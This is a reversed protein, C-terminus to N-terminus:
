ITILEIPLGAGAPLVAGCLGLLPSPARLAERVDAQPTCPHRQRHCQWLFHDEAAAPEEPPQQDRQAEASVRGPHVHM